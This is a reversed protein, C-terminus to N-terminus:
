RVYEYSGDSNLDAEVTYSDYSFTIRVKTNNRGTIGLVGSYPYISRGNYLLTSTTKIDVYGYDHYYIRGNITETAEGHPLNETTNLILNNLWTTQHTLNDTQVIDMKRSEEIIDEESKDYSRQITGNMTIDETPISDEYLKNNLDSLTYSLQASKFFYDELDDIYVYMGYGTCQLTGNYILHASCSSLGCECYNNLSATVNIPVNGVQGKGDDGTTTMSGGCEGYETHSSAAGTVTDSPSLRNEHKFIKSIFSTVSTISIANDSPVSAIAGSIIPIQSTDGFLSTITMEAVPQTNATSITAQGTEGTYTNEGGNGGGDGGGGGGGGGCGSFFICCCIGLLIVYRLILGNRKM